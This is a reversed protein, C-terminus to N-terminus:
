GKFYLSKTYCHPNLFPCLTLLPIRFINRAFPLVALDLAQWPSLTQLPGREKSPSQTLEPTNLLFLKGETNMKNM